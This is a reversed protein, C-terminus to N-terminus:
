GKKDEREKKKREKEKLQEQKKKEKEELMQLSDTSTFLRAHPYARESNRRTPTCADPFILYPSISKPTSEITSEPVLVEPDGSNSSLGDCPSEITYAFFLMTSYSCRQLLMLTGQETGEPPTEPSSHSHHQETANPLAQATVNDHFSEQEIAEPSMEARLYSFDQETVEPLTRSDHMHGDPSGQEIVEMPVEPMVHSFHAVVSDGYDNTHCDDPLAEPHNATLWEVYSLDIYLSYGEDFHKQFVEEQEISFNCPIATCLEVDSQQKETDSSFADNRQEGDSLVM